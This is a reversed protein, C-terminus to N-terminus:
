VDEAAQRAIPAFHKLYKLDFPRQKMDSMDDGMDHSFNNISCHTIPFSSVKRHMM